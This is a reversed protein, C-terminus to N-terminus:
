DSNARFMQSHPAKSRLLPGCVKTCVHVTRAKLIKQRDGPWYHWSGEVEDGPKVQAQAEERGKIRSQADGRGLLKPSQDRQEM